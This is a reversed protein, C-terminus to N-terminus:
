TNDTAGEFELTYHMEFTQSGTIQSFAVLACQVALRADGGVDTQTYYWKLPDIPKWDIITPTTQGGFIFTSCRLQVVDNQTTPLTGPATTVDDLLGFAVNDTVGPNVTRLLLKVIRYRAFINNAATMRSGFVTSLPTLNLSFITAATLSVTVLTKGRSVFRDKRSALQVESAQM